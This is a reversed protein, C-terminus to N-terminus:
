NDRLNTICFLISVTGGRRPLIDLLYGCAGRLGSRYQLLKLLQLSLVGFSYEEEATAIEVFRIHFISFNASLNEADRKCLAGTILDGHSAEWIVGEVRVQGLKNSSALSNGDTILYFIGLRLCKHLTADCIQYRACFLRCLRSSRLTASALRLIPLRFHCEIILRSCLLNM